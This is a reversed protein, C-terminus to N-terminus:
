SGLCPNSSQIHGTRRWAHVLCSGQQARCQAPPMMFEPGLQGKWVHECDVATRTCHLTSSQSIAQHDLEISVSVTHHISSPPLGLLASDELTEKSFSLLSEWRKELCFTGSHPCYSACTLATPFSVPHTPRSSLLFSERVLLRPGVIPPPPATEGGEEKM